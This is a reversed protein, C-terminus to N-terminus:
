PRGESHEHEIRHMGLLAWAQTESNTEGAMHCTFLEDLAGRSHVTRAMYDLARSQLERITNWEDRKLQVLGRESLVELAELSRLMLGAKFIWYFQDRDKSQAYPLVYVDRGTEAEPDIHYSHLGRRASEAYSRDGTAIAARAMAIMAAAHCDLYCNNISCNFNNAVPGSQVQFEMLVDALLRMVDLYHSDATAVYMTNVALTVFAHGRTFVNPYSKGVKVLFNSLYADLIADIWARTEPEYVVPALGRNAAIRRKDALYASAVGNLEAGIDYSISFDLGPFEDLRAFVSDYATMRDYLGGALVLKRESITVPHDTSVNGVSYRAFIHRFTGGHEETSELSRLRDPSDLITNITYSNGFGSNQILSWWKTPGEWLVRPQSSDTADISVSPRAGPYAFFKSYRVKSLSDLQDLSTTVEVDSLQNNHSSKVTVLLAVYPKNLEIKYAYIVTGVLAAEAHLESTHLLTISQEERHVDTSAINQKLDTSYVKGKVSFRIFDGTYKAADETRDDHFRYSQRLEGQRLNAHFNMLGTALHIDDHKDSELMLRDDARRRFVFPPPSNARIFRVLQGVQPVFDPFISPLTLAELAKANDDTWFWNDGNIPKETESLASLSTGAVKHYLVKVILPAYRRADAQLLNLSKAPHSTDAVSVFAMSVFALPVLRQM